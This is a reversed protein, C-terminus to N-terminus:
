LDTSKALRVGAKVADDYISNVHVYFDSPLGPVDSMCDEVVVLKSALQPSIQVIQRLSNAVCHTRAQGVLLVTNYENLTQFIGQNVDTAPDEPLPVNARFIGFHETYPNVGKTIFNVWRSNKNMWDRITEFFVPLFAHGTSGMLCHEPWIFHNFEGNAELSKVYQLSRTPQIRPVYKGNEIDAAFIMTFPSVPNGKADEWWAPHAIDLSYHSDQSAFITGPNLNKILAAIRETDKVSGPVPLAAGPIDHFDNQADIVLLAIDSNRKNATNM